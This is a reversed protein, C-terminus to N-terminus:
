SGDGGVCPVVLLGGIEVFETKLESIQIVVVLERPSVMIVHCQSIDVIVKSYTM